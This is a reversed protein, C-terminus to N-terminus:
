SSAPHIESLWRSLEHFAQENPKFSPLKGTAHSPIQGKQLELQSLSTFGFRQTWLEALQAQEPQGPTPVLVAKLGLAALDLQSSYGSRCILMRAGQLAGTLEEDSPDCWVTVNNRTHTGEGPKGSILLCPKDTGSMWELLAQEMLTRHPEVGSVMGVRDWSIVPSSKAHKVLRSLVGVYKTVPHVSTDGLQGSLSTQGPAVDPVWVEQFDNSWRQVLRKAAGKLLPPVPLQLQHSMLVSPIGHVGCGYCNDSFVANVNFISAFEEAWEREKQIHDVFSPIQSAIRLFNGRKSYRIEPGPKTHFQVAPDNVHSQLWSLATGKSAVHVHWGLQAAHQILPLSRTAHGMGWDLITFLLQPGVANERSM